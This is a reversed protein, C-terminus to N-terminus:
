TRYPRLTDEVDARLLTLPDGQGDVAWLLLTGNFVVQVSRATRATDMVDRLERAFVAADLLAATEERFAAAQAAAHARFEPDTLDLQLFALNNAMETPTSVGVALTVLADLLAAIPSKHAAARARAFVARTDDPAREALALMLGRKSGFRQVLTAPALGAEKAVAGLTLGNPGHQGIARATAQLIAEDSTTRPRAM